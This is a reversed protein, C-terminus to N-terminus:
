EAYAACTDIVRVVRTSCRGDQETIKQGDDQNETQSEGGKTSQTAMNNSCYDKVEDACIRQVKEPVLDECEDIDAKIGYGVPSEIETETYKACSIEASPLTREFIQVETKFRTGKTFAQAELIRHNSLTMQGREVTIERTKSACEVTITFPQVQNHARLALCKNRLMELTLVAQDPGIVQTVDEQETQTSVPAQDDVQQGDESLALSSILPLAIIMSQMIKKRLLM